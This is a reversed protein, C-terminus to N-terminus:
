SVDAPTQEVASCLLFCDFADDMTVQERDLASAVRLTGLESDLTFHSHDDGSVLHYEVHGNLGEDMDIAEV